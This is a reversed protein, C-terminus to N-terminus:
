LPFDLQLCLDLDYLSYGEKEIVEELSQLKKFTPPMKLYKGPYIM